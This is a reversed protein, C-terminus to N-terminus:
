AAEGRRAPGGWRTLAAPALLGREVAIELARHAIRRFDPGGWCPGTGLEREAQAWPTEAYAGHIRGAARMRARDERQGTQEQCVSCLASTARM